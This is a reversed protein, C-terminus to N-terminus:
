KSTLLFLILINAMLKINFIVPKVKSEPYQILFNLLLIGDFGSLNHAYVYKLDNFSIIQSIFNNFMQHTDGDKQSYSHIHTGNYYGCILYPEHKNGVPVTEIDIAMFVNDSELEQDIKM